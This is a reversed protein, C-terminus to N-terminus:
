PTLLPRAASGFFPTGHVSSAVHLSIAAASSAASLATASSSATAAATAAASTFLLRRRFSLLKSRIPLSPTLMVFCLVLPGGRKFDVIWDGGVERLISVTFDAPVLPHPDLEFMVSLCWTRVVILLSVQAEIVLHCSITGLSVLTFQIM